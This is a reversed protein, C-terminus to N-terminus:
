KYNFPNESDIIILNVELNELLPYLAKSFYIESEFHGIDILTLNISKSEMAEHYKIDGTLFVDVKNYLKKLLSTGAGTTLAFTKVKKPLKTYKIFQLNFSTKIYELFENGSMDVESTFIYDDLKELVELKLINELVYRNLIAKDFNTHLSILKIDRQILKQIFNAPYKNFDLQKIGGFILPHHTVILSNEPTKSIVQDDIDLSLVINSVEDDKSGILLGSNDWSDQLEFPSIEDLKSIIQSIKM